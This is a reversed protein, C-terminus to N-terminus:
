GTLEEGPSAQNGARRPSNRLVENRDLVVRCPPLSFPQAGDAEPEDRAPEPLDEDQGHQGPSPYKSRWLSMLHSSRKARSRSPTADASSSSPESTVSTGVGSSSLMETESPKLPLPTSSSHTALPSPAPIASAPNVQYFKGAQPARGSSSLPTSSVRSTGVSAQNRKEVVTPTKALPDPGLQGSNDEDANDEENEGEGGQTGRLAIAAEVEAAEQNIRQQAAALERKQLYKM